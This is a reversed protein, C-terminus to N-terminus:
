VFEDDDDDWHCYYRSDSMCGVRNICSCFDGKKIWGLM